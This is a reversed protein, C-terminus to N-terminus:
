PAGSIITMPYANTYKPNGSNKPSHAFPHSNTTPAPMGSIIVPMYTNATSTAHGSTCIGIAVIIRPALGRSTAQRVRPTVDNLMAATLRPIIVVAQHINIAWLGIIGM